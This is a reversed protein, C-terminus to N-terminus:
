YNYPDEMISERADGIVPHRYPTPRFPIQAVADSVNIAGM